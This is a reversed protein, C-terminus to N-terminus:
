LILVEQCTCQVKEVTKGLLLLVPASRTKWAGHKDSLDSQRCAVIKELGLKLSQQRTM